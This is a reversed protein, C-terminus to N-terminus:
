FPKALGLYAAIVGCVIAITLVVPAPLVKRKVLAPAIGLVLWLGLKVMWWYSDMPPKRLMAFGVLLILLGSIGHLISAATKSSGSGLAIAGLAAFFGFTGAIHLTKLLFPDM